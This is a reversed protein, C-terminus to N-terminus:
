PGAVVDIAVLLGIEHDVIEGLEEGRRTGIEPRNVALDSGQRLNGGIGHQGALAGPAFFFPRAHARGSNLSSVGLLRVASGRWPEYRVACDLSRTKPTLGKAYFRQCLNSNRM